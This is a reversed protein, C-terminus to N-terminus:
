TSHWYQKIEAASETNLLIFLYIFDHKKKKSEHLLCINKTWHYFCRWWVFEMNLWLGSSFTNTSNFLESHFKKSPVCFPLNKGFQIDFIDFTHDTIRWELFKAKLDTYWAIECLSIIRSPNKNNWCKKGKWIMQFEYKEGKKRLYMLECGVKKQVEFNRKM